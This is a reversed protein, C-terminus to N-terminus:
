IETKPPKTGDDSEIFVSWDMEPFDAVGYTYICDISATPPNSVSYTCVATVRTPLLRDNAYITLYVDRLEVAELPPMYGVTLTTFYELAEGSLQLFSATYGDGYKSCSVRGCNEETIGYYEPTTALDAQKQALYENVTMPKYEAFQLSGNYTVHMFSKGDLYGSKVVAREFAGSYRSLMQTETYEAYSDNAFSIISKQTIDMTLQRSNVYASLSITSDMTILEEDIEARLLHFAQEEQSLTGFNDPNVKESYESWNIEPIKIDNGFTFAVGLTLTPPNAGDFVFDISMSVPLLEDTVTLVFTVDKLENSILAEFTGTLMDKFTDLGEGTIKKFTAVYNGAKDKEFSAFGCSEDTINFNDPISSDDENQALYDEASIEEYFAGSVVGDVIVKEFAKGDVYGDTSKQVSANGAMTMSMKTEQYEEFAGNKNSTINFGIAEAELERGLLSTLLIFSMDTRYIDAEFDINLVSLAKEKESMGAFPDDPDDPSKSNDTKDNNKSSDTNTKQTESSKSSGANQTDDSGGCAVALPLLLALALALCILKLLTKKM